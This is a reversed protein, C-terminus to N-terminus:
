KVGRNMKNDFKAIEHYAELIDVVSPEIIGKRELYSWAINHYPSISINNIFQKLPMMKGNLLKGDKNFIDKKM